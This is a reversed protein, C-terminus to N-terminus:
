QASAAPTQIVGASKVTRKGARRNLVQPSVKTAVTRSSGRAPSRRALTKKAVARDPEQSSPIVLLDGAEPAEVTRKNAAAISEAPTAFRKAISVLTEGQQVRYMRWTARHTEPVNELAAVVSSSTGKPVHMLYGAPAVSKLLAPNLERIESVPRDAADAILEVNTAGTLQLTDYELPKDLDIHDLGYDKPNKTMITMALILPVYNMTEKPLVNRSSLEWFDAYGTRQVAREVCAPGCNYAAMALYWDGFTAYLDRLHRAAARTAKEPDLREDCEPTQHLGYSQGTAQGFQWMGTAQKPSIARPLFGSEAQALCLLEQPVGEEDLIRQILPRYRGARRLGYLLVKRGRETSFYNIYSLVTDNGELPLQSVTAQIEEKVKPKLKPDMPFTLDLMSELPSKDYVVAKKEGAGMRDLDYRYISDVLEDLRHELRARDQLDEPASLLVELARDFEQRAAPVNGAQFARKGAEFRTEAATLRREIEPSIKAALNPTESTYLRQTIPPPAEVAIDPTALPTAPLFSSAFSQPRSSACGSLLLSFCVTGAVLVPMLFVRRSSSM